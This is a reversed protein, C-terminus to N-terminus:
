QSCEIILNLHSSWGSQLSYTAYLLSFSVWPIHYKTFIPNLKSGVVLELNSIFDGKAKNVKMNVLYDCNIITLEFISPKRTIKPPLTLRMTGIPQIILPM